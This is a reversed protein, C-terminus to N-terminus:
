NKILLMILLYVGVIMISPNFNFFVFYLGIVALLLATLLSLIKLILESKHVSFKRLCLNFVITGGDLGYCPLLNFLGIIAWIICWLLETSTNYVKFYLFLILSVLINIVPGALSIIIEQNMNANKAGVIEIGYPSFKIEKPSKGTIFMAILHALEHAIIACFMPLATLSKDQLLLICLFVCFFFSIYIKTGLISFRM